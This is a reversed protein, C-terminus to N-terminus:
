YLVSPLFAGSPEQYVGMSMLTMTQNVRLGKELCWRFLNGNRSPLLFGSGSLDGASAILAMLDDNAEGVSHSFFAIGTTYGTIRGDREVVRANGQQLAGRLEVSRDHGHVRRCLDNCAELDREEAPRVAAGPVELGLVPGKLHVLPEVVNFGLEVYLALSRNHYAAQVLRVGAAKRERARELAAEMLRRGVSRDQVEPDVTIPGIGFISTDEFLFNSGVIRGEQEAVMAHVHPLSLIMSMIGVAVESSPIDPPFNHRGSISRFAEYCIAGCSKADDPRGARLTLEM